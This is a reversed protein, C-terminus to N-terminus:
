HGKERREIERERTRAGGGCVRIARAGGEKKVVM